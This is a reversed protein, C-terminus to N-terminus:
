AKGDLQQKLRVIERLFERTTEAKIIGREAVDFSVIYNSIDSTGFAKALYENLFASLESDNMSATDFDAFLGADWFGPRLKDANPLRLDALTKAPPSQFPYSLNIKDRLLQAWKGDDSRLTLSIMADPEHESAERVASIFVSFSLM